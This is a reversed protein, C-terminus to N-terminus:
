CFLSQEFFKSTYSNPCRIWGSVDVDEVRVYIYASGNYYRIKNVTCIEHESTVYITNGDPSDKIKLEKNCNWMNQGYLLVNYGNIYTVPYTSGSIKLKGNSLKYTVTYQISGLGGPMSQMRIQIYDNGIKKTFSNHRMNYAGKRHSMLNVSSVIKGSKYALLRDYDIHDNAINQCKLKLFHRNGKLTYLDAYVSCIDRVNLSFRKKGNVEINFYSQAKFNMRIKDAKGDGTIDYKTYTINPRISVNSKQAAKVTLPMSITSITILAVTFYKLLTKKM